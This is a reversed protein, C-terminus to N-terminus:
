GARAATAPRRGAVLYMVGGGAQHFTGARVAAVDAASAARGRAWVAEFAAPEGGGALWYREADPRSWIWFGKSDLEIMDGVFARQAPSAYPPVLASAKDSTWAAIGALGVGAFLGPLLDGVSNDGEGLATKGRECIAHARVIEVQEVLSAGRSSGVLMASALNNPETVFLLGGPRLVRVFERLTRPVDPVHILLTQCTVLDFSADEFPLENVDGQGYKLRNGIGCAEARRTAQAVWLPERDVGEVTAEPLHPLLARGWHGVGCGADLVDRCRALDLRKAMLALFDANWWFDRQDGFYAASHPETM